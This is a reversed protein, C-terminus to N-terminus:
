LGFNPQSLGGFCFLMVGTSVGSVGCGPEARHSQASKQQQLPHIISSPPPPHTSPPTTTTTCCSPLLLPPQGEPPSEVGIWYADRRASSEGLAPRRVRRPKGGAKLALKDRPEIEAMAPVGRRPTPFFLLRCETQPTQFPRSMRKPGDRLCCPGRKRKTTDRREESMKEERRARTKERTRSRGRWPLRRGPSGLTTCLPAQM